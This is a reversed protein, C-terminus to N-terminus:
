AVGSGFCSQRERSSLSLLHRAVNRLRHPTSNPLHPRQHIQRNSHRPRILMLWIFFPRSESTSNPLACIGYEVEQRTDIVLAKGEDLARRLEGVRVREVQGDGRAEEEILEAIGCFAEYPVAELDDTISANPGCAICKISPGRTKVSRYPTASPSLSLLNLKPDEDAAADTQSKSSHRVALSVM